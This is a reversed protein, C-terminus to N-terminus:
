IDLDMSSLSVMVMHDKREEQLRKHNMNVDGLVSIEGWSHGKGRQGEKVDQDGGEEQQGAHHAGGHLSRRWDDELDRGEDEGEEEEEKDRCRWGNFTTFLFRGGLSSHFFSLTDDEEVLHCGSQFLTAYEELDIGGYLPREPLSVIITPWTPQPFDDRNSAASPSICRTEPATEQFLDTVPESNLGAGM